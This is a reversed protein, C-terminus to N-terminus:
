HKNEKKRENKKEKRKRQLTLVCIGVYEKSMRDFVKNRRILKTNHDNHKDPFLNIKENRRM